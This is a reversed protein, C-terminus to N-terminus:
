GIQYVNVSYAFHFMVMKLNPLDHYIRLNYVFTRLQIGPQRKWHSHTEQALM